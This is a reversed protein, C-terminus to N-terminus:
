AGRGTTINVVSDTAANRLLAIHTVSPAITFVETVGASVLMSAATAVVTSDGFAVRVDDVGVVLRVSRPYPGLFATVTGLSTAATTAGATVNQSAVPQFPAETPYTM